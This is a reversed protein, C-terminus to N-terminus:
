MLAQMTSPTPLQDATVHVHVALTTRPDSHGAFAQLASPSWGDVLALRTLCTHRLDHPTVGELDALKVILLWVRSRWRSHDLMAGKPQTFLWGDIHPPQTAMREVLRAQLDATMPLTRVGASTKPAKVGERRSLSRQVTLTGAQLDIDSRKLAAAEGFRLGARLMVWVMVATRQDIVEAGDILDTADADSLARPERVRVIRPPKVDAAPNLTIARDRRALDLVSRLLQLCKARTAPALQGLDISLWQEIDSPKVMTVQLEGFAPLVHTTLHSHDRDRTSRALHARTTEWRSAYDAVTARALKHDVSTGTDKDVEVKRAHRVAEAKLHFAKSVQKNTHDRWRVQWKGSKLQTISAM